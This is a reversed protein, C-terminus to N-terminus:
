AGGDGRAGFNQTCMAQLGWSETIYNQRQVNMKRQLSHAGQSFPWAKKGKVGDAVQGVGSM